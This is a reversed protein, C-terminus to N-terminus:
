LMLASSVALKLFSPIGRLADSSFGTWTAECSPSLRVYLALVSLNVLYAVANGLAVGRSGLGLGFVLIWCVVPHSVAAAASSLMVPVVLSQAQLFRVHCQLQGFVLWRIYRGAEAAIEPDQGCWALIESTFTWVAALPVSMMALVVMARQKYLGVQHYQGAGFAQGCLTELSTAMGALVSFGTINTFATAVSAGAFQLKGLHGFFILSIVQLVNVLLYGSVLPGALYLQKMVESRVSNEEDGEHQKESGNATLLPAEM